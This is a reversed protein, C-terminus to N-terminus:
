ENVSVESKHNNKQNNNQKRNGNSNMMQALSTIAAEIGEFRSNIKNMVDSSVPDEVPEVISETYVKTHIKGDSGWKKIYIASEDQTVFMGCDGNMPVDGAKIDSESEIVDCSITKRTAGQKERETSSPQAVPQTQQPNGQPNTPWPNNKPANNPGMTYYYMWPNMYWPPMSPMNWNPVNQPTQTPQYSFNGSTDM